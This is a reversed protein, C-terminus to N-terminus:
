QEQPTQSCVVEFCFVRAFIFYSLEKHFKVDISFSALSFKDQITRIINKIM